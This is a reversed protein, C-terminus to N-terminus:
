TFFSVSDISNPRNKIQRQLTVIYESKKRGPISVRGVTRKVHIVKKDFDIDSIKLGLLERYLIIFSFGFLGTFDLIAPNLKKKKWCWLL